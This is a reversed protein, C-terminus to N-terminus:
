LPQGARHRGLDAGPFLTERNPNKLTLGDGGQTAFYRAKTKPRKPLKRTCEVSVDVGKADGTFTFKLTLEGAATGGFSDLHESIAAMVRRYDQDANALDEGDNNVQLLQAISGVEYAREHITM